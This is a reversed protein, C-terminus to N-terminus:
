SRNSYGTQPQDRAQLGQRVREGKPSLLRFDEDLLIWVRILLTRQDKVPVCQATMRDFNERPESNLGAQLNERAPAHDHRHVGVFGLGASRDCRIPIVTMQVGRVFDESTRDLLDTDIGTADM